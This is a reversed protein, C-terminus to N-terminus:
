PHIQLMWEPSSTVILIFPPLNQLTHLLDLKLPTMLHVAQNAWLVEDAVDPKGSTAGEARVGEIYEAEAAKPGLHSGVKKDM